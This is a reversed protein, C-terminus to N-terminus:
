HGIIEPSAQHRDVHEVPTSTAAVPLVRLVPCAGLTAACFSANGRPNLPALRVRVPSRRPAIAGCRRRSPSMRSTRATRCATREGVNESNPAGYTSRRVLGAPAGTAHARWAYSAKCAKRALSPGIERGTVDRSATFSEALCSAFGLRRRAPPEGPRPECHSLLPQEATASSARHRLTESPDPAAVTPQSPSRARGRSRPAPARRGPCRRRASRERRAPTPDLEREDPRERLGVSTRELCRM